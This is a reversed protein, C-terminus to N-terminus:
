CRVLHVTKGNLPLDESAIKENWPKTLDPDFVVLWGEALGLRDMYGCIQAYAKPSKRYYALKKVEVAYVAGRFHVGLEAALRAEREIVPAHVDQWFAYWSSYLPDFAAEPRVCSM